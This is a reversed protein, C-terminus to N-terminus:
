GAAPGAEAFRILRKMSQTEAAHSSHCARHCDLFTTTLLFSDSFISSTTAMTIMALTMMFRSNTKM